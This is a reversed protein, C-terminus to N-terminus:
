QGATGPTQREQLIQDVISNIPEVDISKGFFSDGSHISDKKGKWIAVAEETAGNEINQIKSKLTDRVNRLGIRLQEDTKTIGLGLEELLRDAEEPTVAGGSRAKLISNRVGAVYLRVKKGESSLLFDPANSLGGVGPIDEKGDIGGPITQDLNQLSKYVETIGTKSVADSIKRVSENVIKTKTVEDKEIGRMYNLKQLALTEKQYPSMANADKPTPPQFFAQRNDGGPSGIQREFAGEVPKDSIRFGKGALELEKEPSIGGSATFQQQAAAQQQQALKYARDQDAIVKAEAASAQGAEFKQQNLASTDFSQKIGLISTAIQLGQAITALPDKKPTARQVAVTM